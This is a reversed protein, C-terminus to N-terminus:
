FRFTFTNLEIVSKAFCIFYRKCIKAFKSLFYKNLCCFLIHREYSIFAKLQNRVLSIIFLDAVM